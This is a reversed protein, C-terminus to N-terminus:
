FILLRGCWIAKPTRVVEGGCWGEKHRDEEVSGDFVTSGQQKNKGSTCVYNKSRIQRAYNSTCTLPYIQVGESSSLM